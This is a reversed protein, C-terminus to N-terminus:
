EAKAAGRLGARAVSRDLLGDVRVDTVFRQMYEMADDRGKPIAFAVHELGWRGDLVHSGPMKDSLEFLIAKNTAFADLEQRTFMQIADNLTPAVVVAAQQLTHPLSHESTSGQAVGVRVGPRDIAALATIPSAAPVLYGLELSLLTATFAVDQARAPTVNSITLDVVGAKMGQLVDAIRVFDVREFLVGLRRALEAGLDVSLGRPEGTAPDKVMSLPSGLYVGVRLRGTPALIQKVDQAWAGPLAGASTLLLVIGAIFRRRKM